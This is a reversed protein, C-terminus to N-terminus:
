LLRVWPIFGECCPSDLGWMGLHQPCEFVYRCTLIQLVIGLMLDSVEVTLNHLIERLDARYPAQRLYVLFDLALDRGEARLDSPWWLGLVLFLEQDELHRRHRLDPADHEIRDRAQDHQLKPALDRDADSWCCAVLPSHLLQQITKPGNVLRVSM